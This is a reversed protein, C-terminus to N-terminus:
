EIAPRHSGGYRQWLTLPGATILFYDYAGELEAAMLYQFHARMFKRRVERFGQPTFLKFFRASVLKPQVVAGPPRAIGSAALPDTLATCTGDNASSVDVWSIRPSVAVALLDRRLAAAAPPYAATPLQQGLTLFSIEGHEPLRELARALALVAPVVGASHSVVLVEDFEGSRVAAAIRAGFLVCREDLAPLGHFHRLALFAQVGASWHANFYVLVPKLWLLPAVLALAALLYGVAGLEGPLLWLLGAALALGVLMLGMPRSVRWLMPYVGTYWGSWTAKLVNIAMGLGTRPWAARVIDEWRLFSYTTETGPAEVTWVCEFPGANRRSGAKVALGNVAAQKLAEGRYLNHYFVPPRPDFGAIYFVQRRRVQPRSADAAM